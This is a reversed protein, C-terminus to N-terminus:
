GYVHQSFKEGIIHWMIFIEELFFNLNDNKELIECQLFIIYM